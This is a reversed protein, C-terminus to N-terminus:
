DEKLLKEEIAETLWEGITQEAKIAAIKAQQWSEASIGKVSRPFDKDKM